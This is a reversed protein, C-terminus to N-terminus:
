WSVTLKVKWFNFSRPSWLGSARREELGPFGARRTNHLSIAQNGLLFYGVRLIESVKHKGLEETDSEWRGEGQPVASQCNLSESMTVCPDTAPDSSSSPRKNIETEVSSQPLHGWAFSRLVSPMILFFSIWRSPSHQAQMWLGKLCLWVTTLHLFVRHQSGAHWLDMMGWGPTSMHLVTARQAPTLGRSSQTCKTHLQSLDPPSLNPSSCKQKRQQPRRQTKKGKKTKKLYMLNIITDSSPQATMVWTCKESVLFCWSSRSSWM